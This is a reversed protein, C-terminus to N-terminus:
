GVVTFFGGSGAIWGYPVVYCSEARHWERAAGSVSFFLGAIDQWLRLRAYQGWVLVVSIVAGGPPWLGKALDGALAAIAIKVGGFAVCQHSGCKTGKTRIDVGGLFRSFIFSFPISGILYSLLVLLVGLESMAEGLREEGLRLLGM